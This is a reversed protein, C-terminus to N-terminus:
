RVCNLGTRAKLIACDHQYIAEQEAASQTPVFWNGPKVNDPNIVPTITYLVMLAALITIKM